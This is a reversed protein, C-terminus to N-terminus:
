CQVVRLEVRVMVWLLVFAEHRGNVSALGSWGQIRENGRLNAASSAQDHIDAQTTARAACISNHFHASCGM